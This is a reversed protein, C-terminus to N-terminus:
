VCWSCVIELSDYAYGGVFQWPNGLIDARFMKTKYGLSQSSRGGPNKRLSSPYNRVSTEPCGM